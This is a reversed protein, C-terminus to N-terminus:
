ALAARHYIRPRPLPHRHLLRDYRDWPMKARQSRRNLWKRWLRRVTEHYTALARLNGTIGYYEYHGRLMAVLRAHQWAVAGHRHRRCWLNVRKLAANLRDKATRRKVVWRGKRSRAWYHTFGLWGFTGPRQSRDPRWRASPRLFRVLRTKDPHLILGFRGFRKPLVELM